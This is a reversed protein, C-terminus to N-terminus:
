VADSPYGLLTLCYLVFERRVSQQESVKTLGARFVRDLQLSKDVAIECHFSLFLM